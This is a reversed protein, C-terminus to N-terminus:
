NPERAIGWEQKNFIRDPLPALTTSIRDHLDSAPTTFAQKALVRLGSRSTKVWYGIAPSIESTLLATAHVIRSIVIFVHPFPLLVTFLHVMLASTRLFGTSPKM